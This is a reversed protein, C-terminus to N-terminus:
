GLFGALNAPIWKAIQNLTTEYFGAKAPIKEKIQILDFCPSTTRFWSQLTNLCFVQDPQGLM